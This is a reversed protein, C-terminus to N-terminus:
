TLHNGDCVLVSLQLIILHLKAPSLLLLCHVLPFNIECGLPFVIKIQAPVHDFSAETTSFLASFFKWSLVLFFFIRKGEMWSKRKSM